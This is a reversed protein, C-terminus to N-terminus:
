QHAALFLPISQHEPAHTGIHDGVIHYRGREQEDRKGRSVETFALNGSTSAVLASANRNNGGEM